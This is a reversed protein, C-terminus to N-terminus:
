IIAALITAGNSPKIVIGISVFPSPAARYPVQDRILTVTEKIIGKANTPKLILITRKRAACFSSLMMLSSKIEAQQITNINPINKESKSKERASVIAVYMRFSIFKDKYRLSLENKISSVEKWWYGRAKTLIRRLIPWYVM